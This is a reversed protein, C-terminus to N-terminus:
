VILFVVFRDVLLYCCVFVVCLCVILWVVWWGVFLCCWSSCVYCVSLCVFFCGFRCVFRCVFLMDLCVFLLGGFWWVVVFAVFLCVNMCGVLLCSVVCSCLM